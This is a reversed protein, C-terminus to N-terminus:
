PSYRVSASNSDGQGCKVTKSGAREEREVRFTRESCTNITETTQEASGGPGIGLFFSGRQEGSHGRSVQGADVTMLTMDGAHYVKTGHKTFWMGAIM